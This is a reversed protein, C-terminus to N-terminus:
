DTVKLNLLKQHFPQGNTYTGFIYAEYDGNQDSTYFKLKSELNNKIFPDWHLLTRFDAARSNLEEDTSYSKAKFKYSANVTQYEFFTSSKPMIMGGFNDTLTRITIIGNIIHDGIIFPSKQVEIKEIREPSIKMLENVDFIPVEDVLILPDNYFLEREGDFISLSFIGKRKKVRVSPVLEKFVMELTPTEIYNDLVVSIQPNEFPYPLHSISNDKTKPILDYAKATQSAVIMQELLRTHSSDISLPISNLIPFIPSFDLNVKLELEDDKVFLPCIFVDQVNEFNNISFLFSGDDKSEYIHIQPYERFVSLYIPVKAISNQSIKNVVRGSLGIDRIEPTWTLESPKTNYFLTKFEETKLKHSLMEMFILLESSDLELPNFQNKLYSFLLLPDNFYLDLKDATTLVTGKQVIKLGISKFEMNNIEDIQLQVLERKRFKDKSMTFKPANDSESEFIFPYVKVIRNNEDKLIYYYLGSNFITSKPFQIKTKNSSLTFESFSLVDFKQNLLELTFFGKNQPSNDDNKIITVTQQSKNSLNNEFSFPESINLNIDKKLTDSKENVFVLSYKISDTPSFEVMGWGNKLLLCNNQFLGDAFLMVNDNSQSFAKTAKFVVTNSYQENEINSSCYILPEVQISNTQPTMGMRPNIVQIASLFYNDASFNKNYRTYARLFYVDSLFETPIDLAGQAQGQKIRYKKSLISKQDANFLEVYIIQSLAEQNNGLNIDAIFWITEGSLYLDRDTVLNINEFPLNNMTKPEVLTQGNLLFHFGFLFLIIAKKKM